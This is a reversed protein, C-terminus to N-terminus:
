EQPIVLKTTEPDTGDWRAQLGENELMPVDFVAAAPDDKAAEADQCDLLCTRMCPDSQAFHSATTVWGFHAGM